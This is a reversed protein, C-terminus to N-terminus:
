SPLWHTIGSTDHDGMWKTFEHPTRVGDEMVARCIDIGRAKTRGLLSEKIRLIAGRTGDTLVKQMADSFGEAWHADPHDEGLLWCDVKWVEGVRDRYRIQWYLGQDPGELENSFSIKWVGPLLAVQSMVQFGHEIKPDDSYVEMDIDLDVVLGMRVAGVIVPRGFTSWKDVLGLEQVVELARGRRQDAREVLGVL